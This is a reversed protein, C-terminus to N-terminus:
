LTDLVENLVIFLLFNFTKCSYNYGPGILFPKDPSDELGNVEVLIEETTFFTFPEFDAFCTKIGVCIAEFMFLSRSESAIVNCCLDNTLSAFFDEIAM